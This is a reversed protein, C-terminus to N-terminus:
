MSLTNETVLASFTLQYLSYWQAIGVSWTFIKHRHSLISKGCTSFFCTEPLIMVMRLNSTSALAIDTYRLMSLCSCSTLEMWSNLKYVSHSHNLSAPWSLQARFTQRHNLSPSPPIYTFIAPFFWIHPLIFNLLITQYSSAHNTSCTWSDDLNNKKLAITHFSSSMPWEMSIIWTLADACPKPIQNKDSFLPYWHRVSAMNKKLASTTHEAIWIESHKGPSVHTNTAVSLVLM